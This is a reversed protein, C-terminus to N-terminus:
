SCVGARKYHDPTTIMPRLTTRANHRSSTAPRLGPYQKFHAMGFTGTEPRVEIAKSLFRLEVADSREADLSHVNSAVIVCRVM